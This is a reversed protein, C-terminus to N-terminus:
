NFLKQLISKVIENLDNTEKVTVQTKAQLTEFPSSLIEYMKLPTVEPMYAKATEEFRVTPINNMVSTVLVSSDHGMVLGVSSLSDELPDLDLLSTYRNKLYSVRESKNKMSTPHLRIKCNGFKQICQDVFNLTLLYEEENLDNDVDTLVLLIKTKEGQTKHIPLFPWGLFLTRSVFKSDYNDFFDKQSKTWLLVYDALFPAYPILEHQVIYGHAITIIPIELNFAAKVIIKEEFTHENQLIFGVFGLLQMFNQMKQIQSFLVKELEQMFDPDEIAKLLGEKNIKKHLKRLKFSNLAFHGILFFKNLCILDKYKQPNSVTHCDFRNSYEALKKKMDLHRTLAVYIFRKKNKRIRLLLLCFLFYTRSLLLTIFSYKNVLNAINRKHAIEQGTFLLRLETEIYYYALPFNTSTESYRADLESNLISYPNNQM